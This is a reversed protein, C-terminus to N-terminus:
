EISLGRLRECHYISSISNPYEQNQLQCCWAAGTPDASAFVFSHKINDSNNNYNMIYINSYNPEKKLDMTLFEFILYLKAEQM